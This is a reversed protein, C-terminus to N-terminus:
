KLNSFLSFFFYWSLEPFILNSPHTEKKGKIETSDRLWKSALTLIDTCPLSAFLFHHTILRRYIICVETCQTPNVEHQFGLFERDSIIVNGRWGPKTELVKRLIKSYTKLKNKRRWESKEKNEPILLTQCFTIESILFLM